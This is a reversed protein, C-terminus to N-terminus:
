AYQLWIDGNVGGSPAATSITQHSGNWTTSNAVTDNVTALNVGAKQPTGTFNPSELPAYNAPTLNGSHWIDYSAWTIAGTGAAVYYIHPSGDVGILYAAKTTDYRQWNTGDFYANQALYSGSGGEVYVFGATNSNFLSISNGGATGIGRTTDVLNLGGTITPTNITPTTISPSDAYVNTRTFDMLLQWNLTQAAADQLQYLKNLDTRYCLMGSQLNTSPFATGGSCSIATKDNGLLQSLSASLTTTSAIETYNQM